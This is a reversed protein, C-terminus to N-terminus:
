LGFSFFYLFLIKRARAWGDAEEEGGQEAERAVRQWRRRGDGPCAGAMRPHLAAHTRIWSGAGAEDQTVGEFGIGM